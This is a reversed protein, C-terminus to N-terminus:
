CLGEKLFYIFSEAQNYLSGYPSGKSKYKNSDNQDLGGEMLYAADGEVFLEHCM